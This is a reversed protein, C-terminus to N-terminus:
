NKNGKTKKLFVRRIKKTTTEIHEIRGLDGHTPCYYTMLMWKKDNNMIIVIERLNSPIYITRVKM